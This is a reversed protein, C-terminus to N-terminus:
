ISVRYQIAGIQLPAPISQTIDPALDSARGPIKWPKAETRLTPAVSSSEGSRVAPNDQGSITYAGSSKVHLYLRPIGIRQGHVYAPHEPTPSIPKFDTTIDYGVIYNGAPLNWGTVNGSGDV